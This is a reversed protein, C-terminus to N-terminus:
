CLLGLGHTYAAECLCVCVCLPLSPGSILGSMELVGVYKKRLAGM